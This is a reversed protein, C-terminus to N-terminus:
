LHPLSQIIRSVKDIFFVIRRTEIQVVEAEFKIIVNIEAIGFCVTVAMYDAQARDSVIELTERWIQLTCCRHFQTLIQM